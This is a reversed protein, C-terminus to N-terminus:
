EKFIVRCLVSIKDVTVKENNLIVNLNDSVTDLVATVPYGSENKIEIVSQSYIDINESFDSFSKEEEGNVLIKVKEPSKCDVLKVTVTGKDVIDQVGALISGDSMDVNTFVQRTSKFSLGLQSFCVLSFLCICITTFFVSFTNIFSDDVKFNLFRM